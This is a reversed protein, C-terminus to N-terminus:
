HRKERYLHVMLYSQLNELSRNGIIWSQRLVRLFELLAKPSLQLLSRLYLAFHRRYGTLVDDGGAGSLFFKLEM